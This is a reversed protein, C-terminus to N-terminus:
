SKLAENFIVVRNSTLILIDGYYELICLFVSVLINRQLDQLSQEHLFVEAEDLLVVCDWTKGLDLVSEM